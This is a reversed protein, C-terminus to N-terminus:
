RRIIVILAAQAEFMGTIGTAARHGTRAYGMGALHDHHAITPLAARRCYDPWSRCRGKHGIVVVVAAINAQHIAMDGPELVGRQDRGAVGAPPFLSAFLEGNQHCAYGGGTLTSM